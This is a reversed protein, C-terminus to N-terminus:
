RLGIASKVRQMTLTAVHRAKERGATLIEAIYDPAKELEQRKLRVPEFTNWIAEFLRQKFVGYGVGGQRFEAEMQESAAPDALHRYLALINSGAPDKPAEVLKSDTLMSMVKKRLEKEALFLDITNGYSKSMKQGDIGPIVAVEARILPEPLKFVPGYQENFKIAIDRTVEVHQKQDRGVPVLDSGYLLIDAAM